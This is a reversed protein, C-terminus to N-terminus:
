HKGNQPPPLGRTLIRSMAVNQSGPTCAYVHQGNELGNVMPSQQYPNYATVCLHVDHYYTYM